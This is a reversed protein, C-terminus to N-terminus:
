QMCTTRTTKSGRRESEEEGGGERRKVPRAFTAARGHCYTLLTSARTAAADHTPGLGCARGLLTETAEGELDEAAVNLAKPIHWERQGNSGVSDIAPGSSVAEGAGTRLRRM